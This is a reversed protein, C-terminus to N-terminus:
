RGRGGVNHGRGGGRGPGGHQADEQYFSMGSDHDDASPIRNPSVYNVLMDYARNMDKPYKDIGSVFDNQTNAILAGYRKVDAHLFMHMALYEERVVQKM